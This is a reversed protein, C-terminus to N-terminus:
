FGSGRWWRRRKVAGKAGNRSFGAEEGRWPLPTFGESGARRVIGLGRDKEPTPREGERLVPGKEKGSLMGGRSLERAARRCRGPACRALVCFRLISIKKRRNELTKQWAPTARQAGAGGQRAARGTPISSRAGRGSM